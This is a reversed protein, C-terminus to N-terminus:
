LEALRTKLFLRFNQPFALFDNKCLSGKIIQVQSEGIQKIGLFGWLKLVELNEKFAKFNLTEFNMETFLFRAGYFGLRFGVGTNLYKPNVYMGVNLVKNKQIGNLQLVGLKKDASKVFLSSTSKNEKLSDVYDLHEQLSIKKQNNMWIRISRHNRWSLVEKLEVKKRSDVQIKVRGFGM